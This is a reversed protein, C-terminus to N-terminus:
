EHTVRLALSGPSKLRARLTGANFGIDDIVLEADKVDWKRGDSHRPFAFLFTNSRGMGFNRTFSYTSPPLVHKKSDELHVKGRLGAQLYNLKERFQDDGELLSSNLFDKSIDEPTGSIERPSISVTVYIAEGYQRSLEKAQEPRVGNRLERALVYEPSQYLLRVRYEGLDFTQLAAKEYASVFEEPLLGQRCGSLSALAIV